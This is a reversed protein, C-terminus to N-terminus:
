SVLLFVRHPVMFRQFLEIFAARRTLIYYLAVAWMFSDLMWYLFSSRADVVAIADLKDEGAAVFPLFALSAGAVMTAMALHSFTEHKVMRPGEM